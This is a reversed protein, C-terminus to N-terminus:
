AYFPMTELDIAPRGINECIHPLYASWNVDRYVDVPVSRLGVFVEVLLYGRVLFYVGFLTNLIWDAIEAWSSDELDGPFWFITSIAIPIVGCLISSTHWLIQEARTPFYFDWGILHCAGFAMVVLSPILFTYRQSWIDITIDNEDTLSKYNTRWKLQLSRLSEEPIERELAIPRQIDLPKKWWAVYTAMTCVIIGATFLELTTVPLKDVARGILQAIFWVIQISTISKSIWDGKSKDSIEQELPIELSRAKVLRSLMGPELRILTRILTGDQESTMTVSYGGMLEFYAQVEGM